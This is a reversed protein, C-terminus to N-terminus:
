GTKKNSCHKHMAGKWDSYKSKAYVARERCYLSCKNFSGTEMFSRGPCWSCYDVLGCEKCIFGDESNLRDVTTRIDRWCPELGKSLIDLKPYDIELCINMKGYPTVSFSTNGAGCSFMKERSRLVRSVVPRKDDFMEPYVLRRALIAKDASLSYKRAYFLNKSRRPLIETDVSHSVNLSRAFKNIKVIENYNFKFVSTKINVAIGEKVLLGVADRVRDPSVQKGALRSFVLADFTNLSINVSDVNVEALRKAAERGILYGNSFLGVFFGM